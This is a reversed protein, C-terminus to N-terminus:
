FKFERKIEERYAVLLAHRPEALSRATETFLLDKLRLLKEDLHEAFGRMGRNAPAQYLAMRYIGIAGMADLKDADSLIQAEIGEPAAGASFSHGRICNIIAGIEESDIGIEALFPIALEESLEAHHKGQNVPEKEIGRGVDHLLAAAQLLNGDCLEEHAIEECLDVVRLIHGWGHLDDPPM